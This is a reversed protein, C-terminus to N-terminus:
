LQLLTTQVIRTLGSSDTKIVSVSRSKQSASSVKSYRDDLKTPKLLLADFNLLHRNYVEGGTTYRDYDITSRNSIYLSIKCHTRINDISFVLSILSESFGGTGM